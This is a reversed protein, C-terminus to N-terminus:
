LMGNENQLIRGRGNVFDQWDRNPGSEYMTGRSDQFYHVKEKGRHSSLLGSTEWDVDFRKEGALDFRMRIKDPTARPEPKYVRANYSRLDDVVQFTINYFGQQLLEDVVPRLAARMTQSSPNPRRWSWEGEEKPLQITLSALAQSQGTQLATEIGKVVEKRLAEEIIAAHQANVGPADRTPLLRNAVDARSPIKTQSM